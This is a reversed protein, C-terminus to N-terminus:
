NDHDNLNAQGLISCQVSSSLFSSDRKVHVFHEVKERVGLLGQEETPNDLEGFSCSPAKVCLLAPTCSGHELQM